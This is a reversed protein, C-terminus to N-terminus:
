FEQGLSVFFQWHETDEIQTGTVFGHAATGRIVGIFSQYRLGLGPSWYLPSDLKLNATGLFGADTFIFPDLGKFILSPMRFELGAYASAVTGNELKPLEFLSFGRITQDGGLWSFYNQPINQRVNGSDTAFVSQIGFRAGLVYRPPIYNQLNWLRSGSLSVWHAGVQDVSSYLVSSAEIGLRYGNRPENFFVEFDNSKVQLSSKWLAFMKQGTTPGVQADEFDGAPGTRFELQVGSFDRRAGFSQWHVFQYYEQESQDLRNGELSPMYYWRNHNTFAHWEYSLILSQRLQSAYASATMISANTDRRSDMWNVKVIPYEETSAGAGVEFLRSTGATVRQQVTLKGDECHTLFTSHAIVSSDESRRSSLTLLDENYPEGEHFAYFRELVQIKIKNDENYEIPPFVYKEGAKIYVEVEKTDVIARIEVAACAYGISKLRRITWTQIEDLTGSVFDKNKWGIFRVKYFDVPADIFSVNQVKFKPGSYIHLQHQIEESKEVDSDSETFKPDGKEIMKFKPEYYGRGKLFEKMTMETQAPPVDKWPNLNEDGCLLPKENKSFKIKNRSHLVVRGDCIVKDACSVVFALPACLVSIWIKQIGKKM